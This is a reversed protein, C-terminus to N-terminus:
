TKAERLMWGPKGPLKKWRHHTEELIRCPINTSWLAFIGQELQWFGWAGGRLVHGALFFGKEWRTYMFLLGRMETLCQRQIVM